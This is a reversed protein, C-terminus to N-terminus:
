SPEKSATADPQSTPRTSKRRAAPGPERRLQWTEKVVDLLARILPDHERSRLYVFRLTTGIRTDQWLCVEGAQAKQLAVEERMLAVGAGSTVLSSVVAVDDAGILRTAEVGHESFLTAAFQHHSSVPPPMIRARRTANPTVSEANMM